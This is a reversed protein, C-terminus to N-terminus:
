VFLPSQLRIDVASRDILVRIPRQSRSWGEQGADWRRWCESSLRFELRKEEGAQLPVKLFGKLERMGEASELYCQVVDAGARGGANELTLSIRLHDPDSLDTELDRYHFQTYSLGHGFPFLAAPGAVGHWRYGHCMGERYTAERADYASHAHAAV